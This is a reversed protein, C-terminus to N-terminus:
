LINYLYIIIDSAQWPLYIKKVSYHGNNKTFFQKIYKYYYYIQYFCKFVLYSLVNVFVEVKVRSNESM